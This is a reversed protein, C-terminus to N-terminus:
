QRQFEPSGLAYGILIARAERPLQSQEAQARMVRLTNPSARGSLIAGNVSGIMEDLDDSLPAVRDADFTVGPIRGAAM